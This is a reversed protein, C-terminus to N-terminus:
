GAPKARWLKWSGEARGLLADAGHAVEDLADKEGSGTRRRLDDARAALQDRPPLSPRLKVLRLPSKRRHEAAWSKFFADRGHPSGSAALEAM